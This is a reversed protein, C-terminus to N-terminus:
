GGTLSQMIFVKSDPKVHDSLGTRDQIALGDIFIIMHTRVHGQDDLVYDKVQPQRTFYNQLVQKINSGEVEMAEFAVHRAINPTDALM